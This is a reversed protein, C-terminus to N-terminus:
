YKTQMITLLEEIMDTAKMKFKNIKQEQNMEVGGMSDGLFIVKNAERCFMSLKEARKQIDLLRSQEKM